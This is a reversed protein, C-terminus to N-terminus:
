FSRSIFTAVETIQCVKFLEAHRIGKLLRGLEKVMWAQPVVFVVFPFVGGDKEDYARAYNTCKELVYSPRKRTAEVEFAISRKKGLQTLGIEALMDARAHGIASELKCALIELQEAREAKVLSVFVDVVALAHYDISLRPRFTGRKNMYYWGAVGLEYVYAGSGGKEGAPQRAIRRLYKRSVLRRLCRELSIRAVDAFLVEKIQSATAQHFDAVMRVALTDRESLTMLSDLVRVTSRGPAENDRNVRWTGLEPLKETMGAGSELM